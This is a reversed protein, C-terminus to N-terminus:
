TVCSPVARGKSRLKREEDRFIGVMVTIRYSTVGQKKADLRYSRSSSITVRGEKSGSFLVYSAELIYLSTLLISLVHRLMDLLRM